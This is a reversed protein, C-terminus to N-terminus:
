VLSAAGGGILCIKAAPLSITGEQTMLLCTVIHVRPVFIHMCFDCRINTYHHEPKSMFSCKLAIRSFKICKHPQNQKFCDPYLFNRTEFYGYVNSRSFAQFECRPIEHSFNLQPANFNLVSHLGVDTSKFNCTNM